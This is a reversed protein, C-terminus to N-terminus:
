GRWVYRLEALGRWTRVRGPDPRFGLREYFARAPAYRELSWVVWAAEGAAAFADEVLARGVGGGQQEPLVYLAHLERGVDDADDPPGSHAYGVVRGDREAVTVRQDPDVAARAWNAATRDLDLAAVVDPIWEGYTARWTALQVAAIAAGDAPVAPRVDISM